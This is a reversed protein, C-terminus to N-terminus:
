YNSGSIAMTEEKYLINSVIEEYDLNSSIEIVFGNTTKMVERLLDKSHETQGLYNM